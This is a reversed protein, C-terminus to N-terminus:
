NKSASPGLDHRQPEIGANRYCRWRERAAGRDHLSTSVVEIVREYRHLLSLDPMAECLNVLVQSSADLRMVDAGIIIPSRQLIAKPSSDLCHPLFDATEGLWLQADLHSAQHPDTLVHVRAGRTYAKRLLRFAYNSKDLANFHFAVQAMVTPVSANLTGLM